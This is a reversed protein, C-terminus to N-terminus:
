LTGNGLGTSFSMDVRKSLSSWEYSARSAAEVRVTLPPLPAKNRHNLTVSVTVGDRIDCCSWVEEETDIEPEDGHRHSHDLACLGVGHQLCSSHIAGHARQHVDRPSLAVMDKGETQM